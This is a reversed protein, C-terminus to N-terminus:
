NAGEFSDKFILPPSPHPGDFSFFFNDIFVFTELLLGNWYAVITINETQGEWRSVDAERVGSVLGCIRDSVVPTTAVLLELVIENPCNNSYAVFAFQLTPSGVPITVVQTLAAYPLIPNGGGGDVPYLVACNGDFNEHNPCPDERSVYYFMWAAGLGEWIANGQEFGGNPLLQVERHDAFVVSGFFVLLAILSRKLVLTGWNTKLM